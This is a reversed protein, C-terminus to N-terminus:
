MWIPILRLNRLYEVAMLGAAINNSQLAGAQCLRRVQDVTVGRVIEIDEENDLHAANEVAVADACLYFFVVERQYKDQPVGPSHDTLLSTWRRCKLHAEEELEAAAAAQISHHKSREVMGQPFSYVYRGHAPNYERVLTFTQTRKDFPIVAVVSFSDNRWVRGWIDFAFTQGNPFKVKRDYVRAYRNYVVEESVIKFRENREDLANLLASTSTTQAHRQATPGHMLALSIVTMFVLALNIALASYVGCSFRRAAAMPEDPPLTIKSKNQPFAHPPTSLSHQPISTATRREARSSRM